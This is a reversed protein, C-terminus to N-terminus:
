FVLLGRTEKLTENILPHGWDYPEDVHELWLKDVKAALPGPRYISTLAAIDIISKPVARKFFAQAGRSTLQFIGCWRADRYVEYPKPDNFDIVNASMNAEFWARVDSFNPSDTSRDVVSLVKVM